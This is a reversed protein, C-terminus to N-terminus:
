IKLDTFERAPLSQQWLSEFIRMQERGRLPDNAYHQVGLDNYIEKYLLTRQDAMLYEERLKLHEEGLQRFEIRSSLARGLEILRHGRRMALAPSHVLARLRARRHQLIFRKLTDCFDENGYVRADLDHSFLVLEAHAVAATAVALRAFEAIGSVLTYGPADTGPSSGAQTM